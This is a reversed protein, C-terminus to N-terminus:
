VKIMQLIIPAGAIPADDTNLILFGKEVHYNLDPQLVGNIFLNMFSVEDPSLIRQKNLDKVADRDTFTKKTGDSITYFEYIKVFAPLRERWPKSPVIPLTIRPPAPSSRKAREDKFAM